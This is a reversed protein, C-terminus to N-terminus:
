ETKIGFIFKPGAIYTKWIVLENEFQTMEYTNVFMVPFGEIHFKVYKKQSYM